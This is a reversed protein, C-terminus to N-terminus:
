VNIQGVEGVAPIGGGPHGLSVLSGARIVHLEQLLIFDGPFSQGSLKRFHVAPFDAVFPIVVGEHVGDVVGVAGVANIGKGEVLFRIDGGIQHEGSMAPFGLAVAM